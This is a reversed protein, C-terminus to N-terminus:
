GRRRIRFPVKGKPPLTGLGYYKMDPRRSGTKDTGLLEIDLMSFMVSFSLIIEQKAFNRGPCQRTGGGFPLWAGTLGDMTFKPGKEAAYPSDPPPLRAKSPNFRVPGSTPDDPYVLFREAWFQNVPHTGEHAYTTPGVNWISRDMAAVRTDLALLEDKPFTLNGLNFGGHAASRLAFLSTYVRLTEAYMSQLIPMNCLPEINMSPNSSLGLWSQSTIVEELAQSLLDPRQLAELVM